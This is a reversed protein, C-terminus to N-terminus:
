SEPATDSPVASMAEYDAHNGLTLAPAVVSTKADSLLSGSNQQLATTAMGWFWAIYIMYTPFFFLHSFLSLTIVIIFASHLGYVIDTKRSKILSIGMTIVVICLFFAAFFGNDFLVQLYDNHASFGSILYQQVTARGHGFLFESLSSKSQLRWVDSWIYERGSLDGYTIRMLRNQLFYWYEVNVKLAILTTVVVFCFSYIIKKVSYLQIIYPVLAFSFALLGTRKGSFFLALFMLILICFNIARNKVFFVFPLLCLLFYAEISGIITYQYSIQKLQFSKIYFVCSLLLLLITYIQIHQYYKNQNVYSYRGMFYLLIWFTSYIIDRLYDRINDMNVTLSVVCSLAYLLIFIDLKCVSFTKKSLCLYCLCLTYILVTLVITYTVAASIAYTSSRSMMASYNFPIFLLTIFVFIFDSLFKPLTTPNQM